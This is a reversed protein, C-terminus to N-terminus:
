YKIRKNTVPKKNQVGIKNGIEEKGYLIIGCDCCLFSGASAAIINIMSRKGNAIKRKSKMTRRNSDQWRRIVNEPMRSGDDM